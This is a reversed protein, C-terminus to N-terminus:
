NVFLLVDHMCPHMTLVFAFNHHYFIYAIVISITPYKPHIKSIEVGKRAKGDGTKLVSSMVNPSYKRGRDLNGYLGGV